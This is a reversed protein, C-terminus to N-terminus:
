FSPLNKEGLDRVKGNQQLKPYLSILLYDPINLNQAYLGFHLVESIRLTTCFTAESWKACRAVTGATTRETARAVCEALPPYVGL